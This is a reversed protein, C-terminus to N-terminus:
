AVAAAATRSVVLPPLTALQEIPRVLTASVGRHASSAPLIRVPEASSAAVTFFATAAASAIVEGALSPRPGAAWRGLIAPPSGDRARPRAFARAPRQTLPPFGHRFGLNGHGHVALLNLLQDFRARQENVEQALLELEGPRMDAAIGTM